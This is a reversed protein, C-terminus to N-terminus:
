TLTAAKEIVTHLLFAAVFLRLPGDFFLVLALYLTITTVPLAIAELAAVDILATLLL